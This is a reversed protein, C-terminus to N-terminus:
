RRKAHRRHRTREANLGVHLEGGIRYTAFRSVGLKNTSTQAIRAVVAAKVGLFGALKVASATGGEFGCRKGRWNGYRLIMAM